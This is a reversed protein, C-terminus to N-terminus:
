CPLRIIFEAYEGDKTEAKLEGGHAKIIDYSISLGLGTGQGTPKTTFFPQFIKDMVKPPIGNGNDKVSISVKDGIKKTTISVTPEYNESQKKKKESVAYFANNYLNLLVRGIDQPIINIMGLNNDFDTNLASTFSKDRAVLGQYSLTLYENALANIDTPEKNGTTTRSHQLMGKVIADARQGHFKIKEENQLISNLLKKAESPNGEDVAQSAEGILEANVESFNNVFNLPNQIEHAIGATLEGLSAMKESQILQAQTTKLEVLTTQLEEKQQKLSANVIQKQRNNRFLIFAIFLFIVSAALLGFIRIQNLYKEKAIEIDQNRQKEDFNLMLFQLSKQQNFLTDRTATMMKLYKFASDLNHQSEYSQVLISEANLAYNGYNNKQCLQLSIHAYLICSDPQNTKQFLSALNNYSRALIYLLNVRKSSQIAQRFYEEALTYNGSKAYVDGLIALPLGDPLGANIQANLEIGQSAYWRASDINNRELYILAIQSFAVANTGMPEGSERQLNIAQLLDAMADPYNGIERNILGIYHYASAMSRLRHVKLQEAIKLMQYGIELAKSYNGLTNNAFLVSLLGNFKGYNDHLKEALDLTQRAYFVASDFQIFSYYVALQQTVKMKASDEKQHRLQDHLIDLRSQASASVTLLLFLFRFLLKM